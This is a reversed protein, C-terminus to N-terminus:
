QKEGLALEIAQEITLAYGEKWAAEFTQDDLQSRIAALDGEVANQEALPRPSDTKERTAEAWALLRAAREPQALGAYLSAFGEIVFVMGILVGAQRMRQLSNEFEARARQVEGQRLIAYARSARSWLTSMQLNIKEGLAICEDYYACAQQYNGQWYALSGFYGLTAAEGSQSAMKRYIEISEELARAAGSFEGAWMNKQALQTLCSAIGAPNGLERQLRLSEILFAKSREPDSDNM